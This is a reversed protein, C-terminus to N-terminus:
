EVKVTEETLNWGRLGLDVKPSSAPFNVTVTREEGALLSVYNESYYSPLIREGNAANRLTLKLMLAPASGHNAIKVAIQNESGAAVEKASVALQAQALGNLERLNTEDKAWWYFNDSM